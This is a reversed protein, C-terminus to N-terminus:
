QRQWSGKNRRRSEIGRVLLSRSSLVLIRVPNFRDVTAFGSTPSSHCSGVAHAASLPCNRPVGSANSSASSATIMVPLLKKGDTGVPLGHCAQILQGATLRLKTSEGKASCSDGTWSKSLWLGKMETVQSKQACLPV